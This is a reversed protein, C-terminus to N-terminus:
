WRCSEPHYLPIRLADLALFWFKLGEQSVVFYVDDANLFGVFEKDPSEVGESSVSEGVM